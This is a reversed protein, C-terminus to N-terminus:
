SADPPQGQPWGGTQTHDAEYQPIAWSFNATKALCRESGLVQDIRGHVRAYPTKM